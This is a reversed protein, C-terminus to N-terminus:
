KLKSVINRRLRAIRESARWLGIGGLVRSYGLWTLRKPVYEGRQMAEYISDMFTYYANGVEEMNPLVIGQQYNMYHQIIKDILTPIEEVNKFVEGSNGAIEPHGADNRVIAPLGCHLAEILSNSCPDNKSATIFIDSKKLEKALEWSPLPRIHQINKFEVPSNGVFIMEYRSFDLHRDLWQYADFGKNWNASWSTAILRTKGGSKIFKRDIPNFISKDPANMITTEFTTKPIGLDINKKKSWESQFVTGDAIQKMATYAVADRRDDPSNYLRIPGDIRHIFLCDPYKHKLNATERICQYSNFLLLDASMANDSYSGRSLFYEKLAKLFQNGGGSPENKLDFIIKIKV